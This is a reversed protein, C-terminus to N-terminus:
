APQRGEALLDPDFLVTDRVLAPQEDLWKALVGLAAVDSARLHAASEALLGVLPTVTAVLGALVESRAAAMQEAQVWPNGRGDGIQDARGIIGLANGASGSLGGFREGFEALASRDDSMATPSLLFVLADAKESAERSARDEFLLERTGVSDKEVVSSLGPTDILTLDALAPNPLYITVREIESPDAGLDIVAQGTSGRTLALHRTGGDRRTIEMGREQEFRYWTVVRTCVGADTPAVNEGLIANVFTSKGAKERGAVAM